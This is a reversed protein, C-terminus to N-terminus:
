LCVQMERNIISILELERKSFNQMISEQALFKSAYKLAVLVAIKQSDLSNAKKVIEQMSTDVLAAAQLVQEEAEDSVITYTQGLITVTFKKAENTM